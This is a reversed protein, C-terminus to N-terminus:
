LPHEKNYRILDLMAARAAQFSLAGLNTRSAEEAFFEHKGDLTGFYVLRWNDHVYVIRGPYQVMHGYKDRLTPLTHEPVYAEAVQKKDNM